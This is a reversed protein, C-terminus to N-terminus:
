RGAGTSRMMMKERPDAGYTTDTGSRAPVVVCYWAPSLVCYELVPADEPRLIIRLSGQVTATSVVLSLATRLGSAVLAGPM